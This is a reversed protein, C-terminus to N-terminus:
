ERESEFEKAWEIPFEVVVKWAVVLPFLAILMVGKLWLKFHWAFDFMASYPESDPKSNESGFLHGHSRM